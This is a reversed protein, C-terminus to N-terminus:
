AKGDCHSVAAGAHTGGAAWVDDGALIHLGYVSGPPAPLDRRGRGDRRLLVQAGDRSGILWTEGGGAVVSTLAVDSPSRSERWTKGDFRLLHAGGASNWGDASRRLIQGAGARDQLIWAEEGVFQAKGLRGLEGAGPFTTDRTWATGDWRYLMPRLGDAAHEYGSAWAEDPGRASLDSVTVLASAPPVPLASWGPKAAAAPPSATAAAM